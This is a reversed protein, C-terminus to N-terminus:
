GANVKAKVAKESDRSHHARLREVRASIKPHTAFLGNFLPEADGGLRALLSAGALPPEITAAFRDARYEIRRSAWRDLLVFFQRGFWRGLAVGSLFLSLTWSVLRLLLGPLRFFVLTKLWLNLLAVRLRDVWRLGNISAIWLTGLLMDRYRIHALEHALLFRLEEPPLNHTLGTSVVVAGRFPLGMAFAIASNTEVLYLKVPKKVGAAHKIQHFMEFVPSGKPAPTTVAWAQAGLAGKVQRSLPSLLTVTFSLLTMAAMAYLTWELTQRIVPPQPPAATSITSSMQTRNLMATITDQAWYFAWEGGWAIMVGAAIMVGTSVLWIVGLGGILGVARIVLAIM